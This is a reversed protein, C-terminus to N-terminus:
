MAEPINTLRKQKFDCYDKPTITNFADITYTTKQMIDHASTQICDEM